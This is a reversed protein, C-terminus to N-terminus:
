NETPIVVKHIWWWSGLFNDPIGSDWSLFNFIIELWKKIFHRVYVVCAYSMCVTSPKLCDSLYEKDSENVKLIM